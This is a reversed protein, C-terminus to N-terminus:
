YDLAALEAKLVRLERNIEMQRNFQKEARLKIEYESGHISIERDLCSIYFERIKKQEKEAIFTPSTFIFRLEKISALEKKLAEHAYISFCSPAISISSSPAINKKLDNILSKTINDFVEM